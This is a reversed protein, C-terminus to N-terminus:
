SRRSDRGSHRPKALRANLTSKLADVRPAIWAGDRNDHVSMWLQMERPWWTLELTGPEGDRRFHWHVAGPYQALGGRLGVRLGAAEAAREIDLDLDTLDAGSPVDINIQKM